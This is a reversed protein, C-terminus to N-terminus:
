SWKLSHFRKHWWKFHFQVGTSFGGTKDTRQFGLKHSSISVWTHKKAHRRTQRQIHTLPLRASQAKHSRDSVNELLHVTSGDHTQCFEDWIYFFMRLLLNLLNDRWKLDFEPVFDRMQNLNEFDLRDFWASKNTIKIDAHNRLCKFQM